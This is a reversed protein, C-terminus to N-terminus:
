RKKQKTNNTFHPSPCVKVGFFSFIPSERGFGSVILNFRYLRYKLGGCSSSERWVFLGTREEDILGSIVVIFGRRTSIREIGARPRRRVSRGDNEDRENTDSVAVAVNEDDDDDDDDPFGKGDGSAIRLAGNM